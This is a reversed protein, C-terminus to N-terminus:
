AGTQPNFLGLEIRYCGDSAPATLPIRRIEHISEGPQWLWVPYIGGLSAGGSLGAVNGACDLANAFIDEGSPANVRWSLRVEITQGQLRAQADTLWIRDEFSVVAKGSAPRVNGVELFQIDDDAYQVVAVRDAARVREAMVNWDLDQGWTTFYIDKLAPFILPFSVAEVKYTNRTHIWAAVEMDTYSPVVVVGEGEFGLAYTSQVPAIWDTANVVLLKGTPYARVHEVFTWLPDLGLHYLRAERALHVIPVLSIAAVAVVAAGAKAPPMLRELRRVGEIITAAWLIAAAPATYVMLRTSTLVYPYPLTLMAPLAAVYCYGLGFALWRWKRGVIWALTLTAIGLIGVAANNPLGFNMIAKALFQTPFTLGELFFVSNLAATQLGVWLTEDVVRDKPVSLWWPLYIINALLAAAIVALATISRKTKLDALTVKQRLLYAAYCVAMLGASTLGSEHGFPALAALAVAAVAWPMRTTEVFKLLCVSAGLSIVTIVLHFVNNISPVVQANFPFVSMLTAALWAILDTDDTALQKALAGTLWCSLILAILNIAHFPSPNTPGFVIETLRWLTFGIPRYHPQGVGTTWVEFLTKGFLGKLLPLDDWFFPLSLAPGYLTFALIPPTLWFLLKTLRM